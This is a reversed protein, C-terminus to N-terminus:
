EKEFFSSKQKYEFIELVRKKAGRFNSIVADTM